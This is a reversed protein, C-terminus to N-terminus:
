DAGLNRYLDVLKQWETTSNYAKTAGAMNARCEAAFVPDMTKRIADAISKPDDPDFCAGIRHEDVIRRVEPLDAALLPIGAAMYEFVKNPLSYKFNLGVNALLTWLGADATKAEPVVETSPVPPLCFLRDSVGLQSALQEYVKGYRDTGPGRIAFVVEPIHPLSRIVPELNRSPGVGGQYLVVKMQSPLKLEQRLDRVHDSNQIEPINRIIRLPKPGDYRQRMELGISDCVTINENAIKLALREAKEYLKRKYGSHPQFKKKWSNWTINESYWEHHDVVCGAGVEFAAAMAVVAVDLDHAHYAWAREKVAAQYLKKGFLYPYVHAFRGASVPLVRFDIGPGFDVVLDKAERSWAPCIITVKYGATALAKAERQVRPDRRLDNIVMMVIRRQEIPKSLDPKIRDRGHADLQALLRHVSAVRLPLSVTEVVSRVARFCMKAGNWGAWLIPRVPQLRPDTKAWEKLSAM